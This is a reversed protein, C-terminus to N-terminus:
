MKDLIILNNTEDWTCEYNILEAIDRIKFYNYGNINIATIEKKSNQTEQVESFKNIFVTKIDQTNNKIETLDESDIKGKKIELIDDGYSIELNLAKAIDRLKCYNFGDYNYCDLNKTIKDDMELNCKLNIILDKYESLKEESSKAIKWYYEEKSYFEDNSIIIPGVEVFEIDTIKTEDIIKQKKEETWEEAGIHLGNNKTDIWYETLGLEERYDELYRMAADLEGALYKETKDYRSQSDTSETGEYGYVNFALNSVFLVCVIFIKIKKMM